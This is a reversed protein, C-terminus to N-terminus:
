DFLEFGIAGFLLECNLALGGLGGFRLNEAAVRRHRGDVRHILQALLRGFGLACGIPLAQVICFLLRVALYVAYDLWKKRPKAEM